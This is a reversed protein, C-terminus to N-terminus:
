PLRDAKPETTAQAKVRARRQALAQMMRQGGGLVSSGPFPEIGDAHWGTGDAYYFTLAPSLYPAIKEFPPLTIHPKEPHEKAAKDAEEVIRAYVAPATKPLDNYFFGAPATVALQKRLAAFDENDLISKEKGGGQKVAAAVAQASLSFYLNGDGLAWSPAVVGNPLAMTHVDIGDVKDPAFYPAKETFRDSLRQNIFDELSTLTKQAKAADKLPNIITLDRPGGKETSATGYYLWQDSLTAFLDKEIDMGLFSNASQLVFDFQKKGNEDSRTAAARIEDLLRSFDFRLLGAWTANQPILKLADDSMPKSDILALLGTRQGSLAVYGHTAWSDKQFTGTYILEGISATNLIDKAKNWRDGGQPDPRAAVAEDIMKVLGPTSIYATLLADKQVHGLAAKFEKKNALATAAQSEAGLRPSLSAVPGISILVFRDVAEAKLPADAHQEKAAEIWAKAQELMAATDPGAESIIAVCPVPKEPLTFDMGGFYMAGPHKIVSQFLAVFTKGAAAKKPDKENALGTNVAAAIQKPLDAAELMGKLRSAAYEPMADTGRWGIYAIADDPIRDALAQALASLPAALIALLVVPIFQRLRM